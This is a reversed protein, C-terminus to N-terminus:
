KYLKVTLGDPVIISAAGGNGGSNIHRSRMGASDWLGVWFFGAQSALFNEKGFIQVYKDLPNM